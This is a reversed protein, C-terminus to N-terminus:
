FEVVQFNNNNEIFFSHYNGKMKDLMEDIIESDSKNIMAEDLNEANFPMNYLKTFLEDQQQSEIFEFANNVYFENKLSM